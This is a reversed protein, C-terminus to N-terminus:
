DRRPGPLNKLTRIHEARYQKVFQDLIDHGRDVDGGGIMKVEDPHYVHEGGAAVIPVGEDGDADSLPGGRARPPSAGGYPLGGATNYPTGEGAKERGYFSGGYPTGAGAKKTGYFSTAFLRPLRKAIKFGAMTNGQGMGSVIDAPLVYAKNPVHIPLHDTRGAVASHIPGTHLKPRALPVKVDLKPLGIGGGEAKKQRDWHLVPVRTIGLEKAAHARHRGDEIGNAYLALPDLTRRARMHEKLSDINERSTEDIKLPRALQLFEDPHMYTMRGGTQQYNADGHWESRPAIPYTRGGEARKTRRATSLAAAVAVNQPHGAHVMESINHSITSQSKGPALPM